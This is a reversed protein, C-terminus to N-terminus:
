IECKTNYDNIFGQKVERHLSAGTDSQGRQLASTYRVYVDYVTRASTMGDDLSQSLCFLGTLRDTLQSAFRDMALLDDVGQLDQECSVPTRCAEQTLWSWPTEMITNAGPSLHNNEGISAIKNAAFRCRMYAWRYESYLVLEFISSGVEIKGCTGQM